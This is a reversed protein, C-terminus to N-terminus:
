RVETHPSVFGGHRRHRRQRGYTVVGERRRRSSTGLKARTARVAVMSPIGWGYVLRHNGDCGGRWSHFDCSQVGHCYRTVTSDSWCLGCTVTVPRQIAIEPSGGHCYNEVSETVTVAHRRSIELLPRHPRDGPILDRIGVMEGSGAGFAFRAIMAARRTRHSRYRRLM